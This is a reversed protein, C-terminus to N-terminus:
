VEKVFLKTESEVLREIGNETVLITEGCALYGTEPIYQNPHVVIVQGREFPTQTEEDIVGGPSISGVGMGHGRARMYPPACYKAYGAESIVKNMIVAMSSAPVGPRILKLSEELAKVLIDYKEVLIPNKKGLLVTRCIQVVQGEVIPSIEAIIIDGERLRRDTPSHMAHNHVGSSILNFNDDAGAIRMALEMEALIEFETLGPRVADILAKYGADAAWAAKKAYSVEVDTKERAMETIIDNSLLIEGISQIAEYVEIPMEEAGVLGIRGKLNFENIIKLLDEIFSSSGRVDKIWSKDLYRFYDWEPTVLLAINGSSSIIVANKPGLPKCEAFYHFYNPRLINKSGNSYIILGDLGKKNLLEQAKKFKLQSMPKEENIFHIKVFFTGLGSDYNPNPV